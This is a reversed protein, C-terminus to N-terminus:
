AFLVFEGLVHIYTANFFLLWLVMHFNYNSYLVGIHFATFCSSKFSSILNVNKLFTHFTVLVINRMDIVVKIVHCLAFNIM